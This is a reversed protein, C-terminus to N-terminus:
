FYNKLFLFIIKICKLIFFIKFFLWLLVKLCVRLELVKVLLLMDARLATFSGTLNELVGKGKQIVRKESPLWVLMISVPHLFVSGSYSTSDGYFFTEIGAHVRSRESDCSLLLSCLIPVLVQKASLLRLPIESEDLKRCRSWFSSTRPNCWHLSWSWSEHQLRVIVQFM